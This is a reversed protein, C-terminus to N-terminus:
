IRLGSSRIRYIFVLLIWDQNLSKFIELKLVYSSSFDPKYFSLCWNNDLRFNSSKELTKFCVQNSFVSVVWNRIQIFKTMFLHPFYKTLDFCSWSKSDSIWKTTGNHFLIVPLGSTKFLNQKDHLLILELLTLTKYCNIVMRQQKSHLAYHLNSQLIKKQKTKLGTSTLPIPM